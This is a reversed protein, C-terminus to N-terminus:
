EANPMAQLASAGPAQRGAQKYWDLLAAMAIMATVGALNISSQMLLGGSFEVLLFHGILSLLIGLCFIPLSNRGCRVIPAVWRSRVLTSDKGICRAVVLALALFHVLRLPSLNTKNIPFLAELLLPPFRSWVWHITWSIQIVGAVVVLAIAAGVLLTNMRGGAWAAWRGRLQAYGCTAGIVFLFQWAFPNFQWVDGEPYSPLTVNYFQVTAYVMFSLGLVAGASAHLGILVLPFIALLIIYVPLIDLFPPQFQLLLTKIIAVHPESLFDGVRMEENYLPNNFKQVTYAVAATFIMFLFIHAVYLQWARHLIRASAVLSGQREMAPAYVLIAAYGSIFFFVEASDSFGVAQLTFNSLFNDPIHDVFIFFLVLGRFFDLRQDRGLPKLSEVM